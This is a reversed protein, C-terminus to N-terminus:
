TPDVELWLPVVVTEGGVVVINNRRLELQGRRVVTYNASVEYTGPPLNDVRFRGQDDTVTPYTDYTGARVITVVASRLREHRLIDAVTGEITGTAADAGPARFRWLTPAGPANPDPLDVGPAPVTFDVGALEGSRVIVDREGIARQHYYASVRYPGPPLSPIMFVGDGNSRDQTPAIEGPRRLVIVAEGMGAGSLADRVVGAIMGPAEAAAAPRQSSGCGLTTALTAILVVVAFRM